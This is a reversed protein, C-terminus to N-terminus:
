RRQAARGVPAPGTSPSRPRATPGSALHLTNDRQFGFRGHGGDVVQSQMAGDATRVTVRAGLALSNSGEAGTLRLQLWRRQAGIVNDFYRVQEDAQCESASAGECRHRSHGVVVDLDGDRDFDAVAVGQARKHDFFQATTLEKWTLPGSQHFLHARTGAYEAGGIYIDARGDNDVDFVAGTMDGHDWFPTEHPRELGTAKPGLRSFHLLGDPGDNLLVEFPDSSSGM